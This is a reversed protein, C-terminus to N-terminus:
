TTPQPAPAAPKTAHSAARDIIVRAAQYNSVFQPETRSFLNVMPDLENRLIGNAERILTSLSETQAMRAATAQRPGAKTENYDQL